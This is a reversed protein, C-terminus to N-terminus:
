QPTVSDATFLENAIQLPIDFVNLFLINVHSILKTNTDTLMLETKNEFTKLKLLFVCFTM